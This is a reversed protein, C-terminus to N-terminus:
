GAIKIHVDFGFDKFTRKQMTNSDSITYEFHVGGNVYNTFKYTLQPKFSFSNNYTGNLFDGEFTNRKKQYTKDYNVNIKFTVDNELNLDRFFFLPVSLGGTRRYTLSSNIGDTYTRTTTAGDNNISINHKLNFSVDFPVKGKFKGTIGFLPSFQM